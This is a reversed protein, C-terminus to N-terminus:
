KTYEYVYAAISNDPNFIIERPKIEDMKDTPHTFILNKGKPLHYYDVDTFIFKDFNAVLSTAKRISQNYKVEARFKDPDYKLYFLAFIYPHDYRDSIEVHDFRDFEKVYNTFIKKYAYQWHASSEINYYMIFRYFYFSFFGLFAVIIIGMFYCRIKKKKIKQFLTYIGIASIISIMPVAAISRLAHPSERTIAAPVLAIFFLFVPISYVLSNRKIISFMGIILFPLELLYVQGFGNQQSRLNIDGKFFLFKPDFHAIYNAVFQKAIEFSKKHSDFIGVTELRTFEGKSYAGIIPLMSIVILIISLVLSIILQKNVKLHFRFIFYILFPVVLISLIRFSNYSYASLIFCLISFTLFLSNKAQQLFFYIAMLYFMLGATAEYGTRTFIFLWPSITLLFVSILGIDRNGSIKKTLLYCILIIGLSFLVAPLRISFENLGFFKISIATAYIYVPLKFEGFAKFNIPMFEGWEDKGTEAISYANYGISAEDWYVSAPIEAIKYFRTFLLLICILTLIYKPQLLRSISTSLM